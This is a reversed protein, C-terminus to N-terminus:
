NGFTLIVLIIQIPFELYDIKVKYLLISDQKLVELAPGLVSHIITIIIIIFLMNIINFMILLGDKETLNYVIM